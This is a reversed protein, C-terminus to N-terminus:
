FTSGFQSMRDNYIDWYEDDRWTGKISTESYRYLAKVSM